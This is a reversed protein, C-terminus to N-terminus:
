EEHYILLPVKAAHTIKRTLSTHFLNEFFGLKHTRMVLIDINGTDIFNMIAQETDEGEVTKFEIDADRYCIEFMAIKEEVGQIDSRNTVNLCQVKAGLKNAIQLTNDLADNDKDNYQTTFAINKVPHYVSNFPIALVPLMTHKVVSAATSSLFTGTFGSAGNTGMIVFDASHEKAIVDINYNLDGFMMYGNMVIHQLNNAAAMDKLRQLEDNFSEEHNATAIEYVDTVPEHLPYTDVVPLDYIHLIIIEANFINAFNLAYIFATHAADSFDTPFLIKKM